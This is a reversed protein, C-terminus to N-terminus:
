ILRELRRVDWRDLSALTDTWLTNNGRRRTEPEGLKQEQPIVPKDIKDVGILTATVVVGGGIMVLLSNFKIWGRQRPPLEGWWKHLREM